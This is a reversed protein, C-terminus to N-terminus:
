VEKKQVIEKLSQLAYILYDIDTVDACDLYVMSSDNDITEPFLRKELIDMGYTTKTLPTQVRISIVRDNTHKYIFSQLNMVEIKIFKIMPLLSSTSGM